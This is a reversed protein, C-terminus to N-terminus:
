IYTYLTDISVAKKASELRELSTAYLTMLIDGRKVSDGAMKHV